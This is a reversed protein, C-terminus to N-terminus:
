LNGVHSSRGNAGVRSLTLSGSIERAEEDPILLVDVTENPLYTQKNLSVLVGAAGGDVLLPPAELTFYSYLFQRFANTM